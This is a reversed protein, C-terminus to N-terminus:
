WRPLILVAWAVLPVTLIIWVTYRLTGRTLEARQGPEISSIAFGGYTAYPSINPAVACIALAAIMGTVHLDGSVLFPVCLPVLIGIMGLASAFATIACMLYCLLLAILLPSGFERLQDGLWVVAHAKEMVAMYTLIGSIILVIPWSIHAVAEHRRQTPALLLLLMGIILALFGINLHFFVVGGFLVIFGAITATQAFSPLASIKTENELAPTTVIRQGILSRGGLLFFVVAALAVHFALVCFYVGLPDETIGNREVIGNVIVGYPAVPSFAGGQAGHIVLAAILLPSIKYRTALAGGMGILLPAVGPGLTSTLAALAFLIWPVMAIRGGALAISREVLWDMTKNDRAIGLLFMIGVISLFINTPFGALVDNASMGVLQTGVLFAAVLACVGLNINLAISVAFLAVLVLLTILEVPM